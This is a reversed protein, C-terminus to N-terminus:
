PSSVAIVVLLILMGMYTMGDQRSRAAISNM